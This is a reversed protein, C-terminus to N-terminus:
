LNVIISSKDICRTCESRGILCITGWSRINNATSLVKDIGTVVGFTLTVFVAFTVSVDKPSVIVYVETIVLLPRDVNCFITKVSALGAPVLKTAPLKVISPTTLGLAFGAFLSCMIDM